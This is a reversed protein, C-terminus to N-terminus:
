GDSLGKTVGSRAESLKRSHVGLVQRLDTSSRIRDLGMAEAGSSRLTGADLAAVWEVVLEQDDTPGLVVPLVLLDLLRWAEQDPDDEPHLIVHIEAAPALVARALLITRRGYRVVYEGDGSSDPTVGIPSMTILAHIAAPSLESALRLAGPSPKWLSEGGGDPSISLARVPLRIRRSASPM